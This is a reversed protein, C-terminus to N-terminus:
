YPGSSTSSPRSKPRVLLTWSPERVMLPPSTLDHHRATIAPWDPDDFDILDVEIGSDTIRIQCVHDPDYGLQDIIRTYMEHQDISRCSEPTLVRTTTEGVSDTLGRDLHVARHKGDSGFRFEHILARPRGM